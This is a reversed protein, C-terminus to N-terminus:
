YLCNSRVNLVYLRLESSGKVSGKGGHYHLWLECQEPATVFLIQRPPKTTVLSVCIFRFLYFFSSTLAVNKVITCCRSSEQYNSKVYTTETSVPANSLPSFFTIGFSIQTNTVLVINFRLIFVNNVICFFFFFFFSNPRLAKRMCYSRVIIAFSANLPVRRRRNGYTGYLGKVANSNRRSSEHKSCHTRKYSTM